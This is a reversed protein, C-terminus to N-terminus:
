SEDEGTDVKEVRLKEELFYDRDDCRYFPIGNGDVPLEDRHKHLAAKLEAKAAVEDPSIACRAEKKKQYKTIAKDIEPIELPSVGPGNLGLEQDKKTAM